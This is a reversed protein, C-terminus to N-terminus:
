SNRIKNIIIIAKKIRAILRSKDELEGEFCYWFILYQKEIPKKSMELSEVFISASKFTVSM